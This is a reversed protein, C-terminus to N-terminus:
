NWTFGVHIVNKLRWFVIIYMKNRLAQASNRKDVPWLRSWHRACHLRLRLKVTTRLETSETSKEFFDLFLEIYIIHSNLIGNTYSTLKWQQSVQQFQSRQLIRFLLALWESPSKWPVISQPLQNLICFHAFICRKVFNCLIISYIFAEAPFLVHLHSITESQSAGHTTSTWAIVPCRKCKVCIIDKINYWQYVPCNNVQCHKSLNSCQLGPVHRWRLSIPSGIPDRPPDSALFSLFSTFKIM